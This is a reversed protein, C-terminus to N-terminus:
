MRIKHRTEYQNSSIGRHCLLGTDEAQCGPEEVQRVPYCDTGMVDGQIQAFCAQLM